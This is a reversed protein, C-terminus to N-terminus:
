PSQKVTKEGSERSGEPFPDFAPEVQMLKESGKGSPESSLSFLV